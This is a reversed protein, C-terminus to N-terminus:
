GFELEHLELDEIIQDGSYTRFELTNKYGNPLFCFSASIRGADIFVETSTKDILLRM